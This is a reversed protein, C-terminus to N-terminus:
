RLQAETPDATARTTDHVIENCALLVLLRSRMAQTPKGKNQASTLKKYLQEIEKARQLFGIAMALSGQGSDGGHVMERLTMERANQNPIKKTSAKALSRTDYFSKAGTSSIRLRLQELEEHMLPVEFIELQLQLWISDYQNPQFAAQSLFM